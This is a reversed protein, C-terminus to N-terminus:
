FEVTKRLLGGPWRRLWRIRLGYERQAAHAMALGYEPDFFPSALGQFTIFEGDSTVMCTLVPEDGIKFDPGARVIASAMQFHVGIKPM